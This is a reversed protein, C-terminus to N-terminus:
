QKSLALQLELHYPITTFLVLDRNEATVISKKKFVLIFRIVDSLYTSHLFCFLHIHHLLQLNTAEKYPIVSIKEWLPPM